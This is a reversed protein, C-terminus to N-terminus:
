PKIKRMRPSSVTVSPKKKEKERILKFAAIADAKNALVHYAAHFIRLEEPTMSYLDLEDRPEM